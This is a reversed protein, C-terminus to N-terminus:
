ETRKAEFSEFELKGTKYDVLEVTPRGVFAGMKVGCRVYYEKGHVLDVPIEVKSETKAWLSNYGEKKIQLTTKYNNKVRCITSDGLHLNYSVLPGVGPYRYVHVLAHDINLLEPEQNRTLALQTTDKSFYLTAKIRHCTSGMANPLKHETIKVINAGNKRAELKAQELVIEYGCKTTFGTDGISLTGISSLGDPISEDVSYVFVEANYPLSSQKTTLSTRIKPSCGLQLVVLSFILSFYGLSKM